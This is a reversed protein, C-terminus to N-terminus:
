VGHCNHCYKVLVGRAKAALEADAPATPVFAVPRVIPPTPRAKDRDWAQFAAVLRAQDILGVQLAILGFLLHRDIEAAM